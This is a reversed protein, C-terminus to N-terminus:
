ACAMSQDSYDITPDRSHSFLDNAFSSGSCSNLCKQICLGEEPFAAPVYVTGWPTFFQEGNM